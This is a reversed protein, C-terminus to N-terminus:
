AAVGKAAKETDGVRLEGSILKPLLADRAAVLARIELKNCVIRDYWPQCIRNFAETISPDPVVVRFRDIDNKGLHIVTTATETAEVQALPETISSRVFAASIGRKPVFVCVRQNLWAEAGGWLYARFEGDMGVVIDGPQVLYGKPHLEPTWVAPSEDVLDRIRILPKGVGSSNFQASSFPAGYIVDTIAYVSEARWGAPIEVLESDEFQDPFLDAIPKPLGPDRGESKARVPDFDVFWSKFIARAMSELTENMRRNLEIKDDLTGLIHAITKQELLPPLQIPFDRLYTVNTKPVGTMESDRVIKERTEPSSVYYYVFLPDAIQRDVSLKMQNSSLLYKRYRGNDPVLGTQGLTGKKTFVIDGARCLSRSLRQATEESVFVFESDNFRSTGLSLNSGRVVPVGVVTYSSAPLNSGFPGDVLGYGNKDAIAGLTTQQWAEAAGGSGVEKKQVVVRDGEIIRRFSESTTAWDVVDVKFPLDSESFDDALAASISPSMSTDTVVALDLDSYQKATWKARSGFAWVEYEPIHKKLINAVIAWHDPRIDILPTNM